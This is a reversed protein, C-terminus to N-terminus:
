HFIGIGWLKHSEQEFSILKDRIIEENINYFM